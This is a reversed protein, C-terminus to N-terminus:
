QQVNGSDINGPLDVYWDQNDNGGSTAWQSFFNYAEDIRVTENPLAIEEPFSLAWPYGDTSIFDGDEDRNAGEFEPNLNGLDTVDFFPLHIENERVMNKIIFPNFPATGLVNTSIPQNFKVSITTEELLNDQNDTFIIVADQQGSETGNANNSIYNETYVPGTVSEIASSPVGELEIGFGNIFGAGNAVVKSVFDIQVAENNSNVSIETRYRLSVDNFDYDGFSPWLDEFTLMAYGTPSPSYLLFSKNPDNPFADDVDSVGDGDSDDSCEEQLVSQPQNNNINGSVNATSCYYVFGPGNIGGSVNISSSYISGGNLNVFGSININEAEVVTTGNLNAGGSVNLNGTVILDWGNGNLFGQVVADGEVFVDSTLTGNITTSSKTHSPSSPKQGYSLSVSNNAINLLNDTFGTSSKRRIFIKECYSPLNLSNNLVGNVTVGTFNLKFIQGDLLIEDYSLEEPNVEGDAKRIESYVKYISNELNDNITVSVNKYTNFDFGDPIELTPRTDPNEVDPDQEV